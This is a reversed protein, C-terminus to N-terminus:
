GRPVALLGGEEDQAGRGERELSQAPFQGHSYHIIRYEARLKKRRQKARSKYNPLPDEIEGLPKCGAMLEKGGVGDVGWGAGDESSRRSSNCASSRLSSRRSQHSHLMATM